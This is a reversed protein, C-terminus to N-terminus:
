WRLFRREKKIQIGMAEKLGDRAVQESMKGYHLKLVETTKWGGLAAVLEYNWNTAYLADQAFTHRWIHNPQHIVCGADEQAQRMLKSEIRYNTGRLLPFIVGKRKMIDDMNTINFRREFYEVMKNYGDDVFKKNWHEGGGEGKDVIHLELYGDEIKHKTDGFHTYATGQKRTASYYMFHSIGMMETYAKEVDYKISELKDKNAKCADLMTEEITKRQSSTIKETAWKGDGETRGAEIGISGLKEGSIGHVLQFWNRIPKRINFYKLGLPADSGLSRVKICLESAMEVTLKDPHVKLYQTFNYLTRLRHYKTRTALPKRMEMMKLWEEVSPITKFMDFTLNDYRVSDLGKILEVANNYIDPNSNRFRTIRSRDVGLSKAIDADNLTKLKRVASIYSDADFKAKRGVSGMKADGKQLHITTQAYKVKIM